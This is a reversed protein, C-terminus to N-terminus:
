QDNKPFMFEKNYLFSIDSLTKLFALLDKQEEETFPNKMLKLEKSVLPKSLPINSYHQIVEKLKKIRGDHMYPYSFEINRLTPVKFALSDRKKGTIIKRGADKLEVDYSLGNRKLQGDTFLPETHCSNCFQQFLKYGKQEQETFQQKGQMVKDYKSEASVLSVTFAALSKLLYPTYIVSDGWVEQFKKRYFPSNNLRKLVDEISNDMEKPHTIPNISHGNLNGVGGDWNFQDLWALNILVPSNRMGVQGDIGHAQPHDVHTFGSFQIHCSACSITSDRSLIPDYFLSRGLQFKEKTLPNGEFYYSPEPWGAPVYFTLEEDVSRWLVLSFFIYVLFKEIM